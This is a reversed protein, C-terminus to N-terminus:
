IKVISTVMTTEHEHRTRPYGTGRPGRHHGFASAIALPDSDEHDLLCEAGLEAHTDMVRREEASLARTSHLLEFPILSKGVDHLLAATGIRILLERDDTLARAFNMALVAVRVSHGFTFADYQDQRALGLVPADKSELQRLMSEAQAQVPAFDIRGGRCVSVTVSQLLDVVTQYFQLGVRIRASRAQRAASRSGDDYPPLLRVNRCQRAAIQENLWTYNKGTRPRAAVATLLEELETCSAGDWLELGGAQWQDLCAVLRAAAISAGLLPRQRFVMLGDAVGLCIPNTRSSAALEALRRRVADLSNRLRPHSGSYIRANVLCVVLEDVLLTALTEADVAPAPDETFM